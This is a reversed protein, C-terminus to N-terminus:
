KRFEIADLFKYTIGYEEDTEWIGSMKIIYDKPHTGDCIESFLKIHGSKLQEYVFHTAKKDKIMACEIIENEIQRLKNIVYENSSVNYSCKYKNYHKEKSKVDIVFRIFVGNLTCLDNSYNIRQFSSNNLVNNKVPKHYFVNNKDFEDLVIAINM